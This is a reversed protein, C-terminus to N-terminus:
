VSVISLGSIGSTGSTGSTTYQVGTNGYRKLPLVDVKDIYPNNLFDRYQAESIESAVIINDKVFIITGGSATILTSIQSNYTLNGFLSSQTSSAM